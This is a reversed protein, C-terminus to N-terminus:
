ESHPLPISITFTTKMNESVVQVSGGMLTVRKSLLALGLGTGGHKWPDGNPIRYFKDFIRQIQDTPIEVGTNSVSLFLQHHDPTLAVALTIAEGPPTYKCANQLLEVIIQGLTQPHSLLSPLGPNLLVSLTQQHEHTRERFPNVLKPLWSYLDIWEPTELDVDAALRQWDLLDNVLKIERILEDHLITLYRDLRVQTETSQQPLINSRLQSDLMKLAIKINSLPTRLEHSVSYLFDKKLEDLQQLENVKANLQATREQVKLELATNLSQIHQILQKEQAHQRHLEKMARGTQTLRLIRQRLVEWHIPKSIYDTAGAAFSHDIATQNHLATVILVPTQADIQQLKECCSFGDMGPMVADLLVIDPQAVGFLDLCEEGSAAEIVRFGENQALRSIYVRQLSDDDVLLIMPPDASLKASVDQSLPAPNDQNILLELDFSTLDMVATQFSHSLSQRQSPPCIENSLAFGAPISPIRLGPPIWPQEQSFCTM